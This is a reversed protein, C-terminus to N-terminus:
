TSRAPTREAPTPGSPVRCTTARAAPTTPTAATTRRSGASSRSPTTTSTPWWATSLTTWTPSTTPTATPVAQRARHAAHWPDGTGGGTLSAFWSFPFHKAVYQDSYQPDNNSPGTGKVLSASTLASVDAPFTSTDSMLTPNTVPNNSSSGPAGCAGDERGPVSDSVFSTSGIPQAGGLDQAYGKWSVGAANFQDFLTPTDTPYICGNTSQITPPNTANNYTSPTPANPGLTSAVQGYTWNSDGAVAGTTVITSNSGFPTDAYSCDNQTDPEPAQGSALAIYNDESTHGTGYYNKLLVGESPLTQWLYSNSNLGTFTEDYSKNELIILWVHHITGAPLGGVSDPGSAEAVGNGVLPVIATLAVLILAGLALALPKLGSRRRSRSLM